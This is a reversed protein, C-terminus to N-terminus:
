GSFRTPTPGEDDGLAQAWAADDVDIHRDLAAIFIVKAAAPQSEVWDRVQRYSGEVDSMREDDQWSGSWVNDDHPPMVWVTGRGPRPPYTTPQRAQELLRTRDEAAQAHLEPPLYDQYPPGSFQPMDAPHHNPISIALVSEDRPPEAATTLACPPIVALDRV